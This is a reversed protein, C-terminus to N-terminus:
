VKCGEREFANLQKLHFDDGEPTVKGWVDRKERGWHSGYKRYTDTFNGSKVRIYEGYLDKGQTINLYDRRQMELRSKEMKKALVNSAYTM